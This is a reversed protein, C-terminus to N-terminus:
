RNFQTEEAEAFIASLRAQKVKAELQSELQDKISMAARGRILPLSEEGLHERLMAKQNEYEKKATESLLGAEMAQSNATHSVWFDIDPHNIALELIEAIREEQEESLSEAAMLEGYELGIEKAEPGTIETMLSDIDKNQCDKAKDAVPSDIHSKGKNLQQKETQSLERVIDFGNERMWASYNTIEKGADLAKCARLYVENLVFAADYKQHLQYQRIAKTYSVFVALLGKERLTESFVRDLASLPQPETGSRLNSCSPDLNLKKKLDCVSWIPVSAGPYNTPNHTIIADFGYRQACLHEIASEFDPFNSYRAESFIDENVQLINQGFYYRLCEATEQALDSNDDGAEIHNLARNTIYPNVHSLEELQQLLFEIDEFFPRRHYIFEMLLDADVLVKYSRNTPMSYDLTM